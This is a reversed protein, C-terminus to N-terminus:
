MWMLNIGKQLRMGVHEIEKFNCELIGTGGIGLDGVTDRGSLNKILVKYSTIFDVKHAVHVV